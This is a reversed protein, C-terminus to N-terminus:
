SCSRNANALQFGLGEFTEVLCDCGNCVMHHDIVAKLETVQQELESIRDAATAATYYTCGCADNELGHAGGACCRVAQGTGHSFHDETSHRCKPCIPHSIRRM